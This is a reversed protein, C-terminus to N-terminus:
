QDKRRKMCIVNKTSVSNDSGTVVHGIPTSGAKRAVNERKKADTYIASYTPIVGEGAFEAHVDGWAARKCRLTKFAFGITTQFTEAISQACIYKARARRPASIYAVCGYWEIRYAKLYVGAYGDCTALHEIWLEGKLQHWMGLVTHRGKHRWTSPDPDPSWLMQQIEAFTLGTGLDEYRMGCRECTEGKTTM